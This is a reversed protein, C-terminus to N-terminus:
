RGFQMTDCEMPSHSHNTIQKKKLMVTM